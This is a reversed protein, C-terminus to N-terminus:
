DVAKELAGPWEAEHFGDPRRHREPPPVTAGSRAAGQAAIRTTELGTTVLLDNVKYGTRPKDDAMVSLSPERDVVAVRWGAERCKIAPASGGEGSGIAVPDFEDAERGQGHDMLRGDDIVPM